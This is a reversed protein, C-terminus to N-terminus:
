FTDTTPLKGSVLDRASLKARRSTRGGNSTAPDFHNNANPDFERASRQLQPNFLDIPLDDEPPKAEFREDIGGVSEAVVIMPVEGEDDAAAAKGVFSGLQQAETHFSM